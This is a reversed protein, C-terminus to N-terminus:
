ERILNRIESVDLQEPAITSFFFNLRKGANRLDTESAGLLSGEMYELALAIAAEPYLGFRREFIVQMFDQNNLVAETISYGHDPDWLTEAVWYLRATANRSVGVLSPTGLFRGVQSRPLVDVTSLDTNPMWRATVFDRMPILNVWHWFSMTNLLRRPQDQLAQHLLPAVMADWDSRKQDRVITAVLTRLSELEAQFDTVEYQLHRENPSRLHNLIQVTTPTTTLRALKM